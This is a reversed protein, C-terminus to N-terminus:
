SKMLTVAKRMLEDVSGTELLVQLDEPKSSALACLSYVYEATPTDTLLYYRELMGDLAQPTVTESKGGARAVAGEKWLFVLQEWAALPIKDDIERLTEVEARVYMKGRDDDQGAGRGGDPGRMAGGATTPDPRPLPSPEIIRRIRFPNRGMAEIKLRQGGPGVDHCKLIKAITGVERPVERGNASGGEKALCVGFQGDGQMCDDVLQRHRPEDANLELQQRPFLVLDVVYIPITRIVAPLYSPRM